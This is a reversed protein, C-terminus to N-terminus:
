YDSPKQKKLLKWFLSPWIGKLTTSISELGQGIIVEQKKNAIAQIMHNACQDAPMGGEQLASMKGYAEGKGNLANKSINTKIGGPCLITVAIAEEELRLTEFYGHLAFKSAAYAARQYFGFKGALSSTVAIQGASERLHPLTLQTLAVTGFYNIEMLKRHVELDTEAIKSRQSLGANNILIDIGGFAEAAKNVKEPLTHHKTLDVPLVVFNEPHAVTNKLHNLADENRASAIIKGGLTALQLALEKGIGSSAGTVWIRKHKFYQM